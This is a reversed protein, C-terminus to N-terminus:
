PISRATRRTHFKAPSFIARSAAAPTSCSGMPGTSTASPVAYDGRRAMGNPESVVCAWEGRLDGHLVGQEDVGRGAHDVAEGVAVELRHGRLIKRQAVLRTAHGAAMEL